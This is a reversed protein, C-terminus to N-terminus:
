IAVDLLFMDGEIAYEAFGGVSESASKISTLGYGHGASKKSTSPLNNKFKIEGTFRNTIRLLTKNQKTKIQLKVYRQEEPLKISAELANQLGNNLALCIEVHHLEITGHKIDLEFVTQNDAFIEAYNSIVANIYPDDSYLNKQHRQTYDKLKTLYSLAETMNDKSLLHSITNMHGNMDHKIQQIEEQNHLQTEYYRYQAEKEFALRDNTAKLEVQKITSLTSFLYLALFALVFFCLAIMAFIIKIDSNLNMNFVFDTTFDIILKASFAISGLVIWNNRSLGTQILNRGKEKLLIWSILSLVSYLSVIVLTITAQVVWDKGLLSGLQYHLIYGLFTFLRNLISLTLILSIMKWFVENFSILILGINWYGLFALLISTTTELGFILTGIRYIIPLSLYTLVILLPYVWWKFRPRLFCFFLSMNGLTVAVMGYSNSLIKWVYSLYLM